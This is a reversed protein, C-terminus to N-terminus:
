GASVPPIFAVEDSESLELEFNDVYDLNVSVASTKIVPAADPHLKVLRLILDHMRFPADMVIIESETGIADRLPGFYLVRMM